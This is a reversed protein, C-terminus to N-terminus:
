AAGEELAQLAARLTAQDHHDEFFAIVCEAQQRRRAPLQALLPQIDKWIWTYTVTAAQGDIAALVDELTVRAEALWLLFPMISFEQQERDAWQRVQQLRPIAAERQGPVLLLEGSNAMANRCEQQM